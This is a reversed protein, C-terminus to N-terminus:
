LNTERATALKSLIHPWICGKAVRERGARAHGIQSNSIQVLRAARAAQIKYLHTILETEKICSRALKEEAVHVDHEAQAVDIICNAEALLGNPPLAIYLHPLCEKHM